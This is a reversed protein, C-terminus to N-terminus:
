IQKKDQNQMILMASVGLFTGAAAAGLTTFASMNNNSQLSQM